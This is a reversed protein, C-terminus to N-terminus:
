YIAQRSAVAGAISGVMQRQRASQTPLRTTAFLIVFLMWSCDGTRVFTSETVNHLLIGLTVYIVYWKWGDFIGRKAPETFLAANLAALLFITLFLLGIIGTQALVDLYGNHAENM